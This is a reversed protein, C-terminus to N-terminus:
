AKHQPAAAGGCDLGVMTMSVGRTVEVHVNDSGGNAYRRRRGHHQENELKSPRWGDKSDPPQCPRCSSPYALLLQNCSFKVYHFGILHVWLSELPRPILIMNHKKEKKHKSDFVLQM